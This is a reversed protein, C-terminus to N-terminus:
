HLINISRKSKLAHTRDDLVENNQSRNDLSELDWHQLIEDVHPQTGLSVFIPYSTQTQYM